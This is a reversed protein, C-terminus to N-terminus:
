ASLHHALLPDLLRHGAPLTTFNVDPISGFQKKLAAPRTLSDNAGYIVTVPIRNEVVAKLFSKRPVSFAEMSYWYTFVRKLRRPRELNGALFNAISASILRSKALLKVPALFWGPKQLLSYFGKRMWLPIGLALALGRPNPALLIIRDLRPALDPTVVQAIQAGLSFGLLACRTHACSDLLKEALEILDSRTIMAANWLTKGHFPLEPAVITYKGNFANELVSFGSARDNYGHFAILLEPGSGFKLCNM